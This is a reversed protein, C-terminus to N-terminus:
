SPWQDSPPGLAAIIAVRVSRGTWKGQPIQKTRGVTFPIVSLEGKCSFALLPIYFFHLCQFTVMQHCGNYYCNIWILLILSGAPLFKNLFIQETACHEGCWAITIFFFPLLKVTILMLMMLLPVFPCATGGSIASLSSCLMEETSNKLLICVRCRLM